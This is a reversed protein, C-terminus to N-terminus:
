QLFEVMPREALAFSRAGTQEGFQVLRGQLRQGGFAVEQGVPFRNAGGDIVWDLHITM